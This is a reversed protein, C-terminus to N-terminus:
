YAIQNTELGLMVMACYEMDQRTLGPNDNLMDMFVDTFLANLYSLFAEADEETMYRSGSKIESHHNGFYRAWRSKAYQQRYLTIRERQLAVFPSTGETGANSLATEEDPEETYGAVDPAKDEEQTLQEVQRQRIADLANEYRLKEAKRRRDALLYAIIAGMLLVVVFLGVWLLFRRHRAELEKDHLEVFHSDEIEAIEKTQRIAYVSDSLAVFNRFYAGLSDTKNLALSSEILKEYTQCFTRTDEKCELVRNYYWFASDIKNERFFLNGKLLFLAGVDEKQKYSLLAEEIYPKAKDYDKDLFAYLKALQFTANKHFINNLHTNELVRRFCTEAQEGKELYLFARGMFMDVYGINTSDTECVNSLRYRQFVDLAEKEKEHKLYLKGLEFLSYAFYKNTTDPFLTTARLLADIADLDRNMDGYTCGLYYQSLAACETKRRTGYYGTAILPLSDSTLRIRSKYDAQTKLLAFLAAEEGRLTSADISDLVLAAARSDTEMVQEARSLQERVPSPQSCSFLFAASLLCFAISKLQCVSLKLTNM